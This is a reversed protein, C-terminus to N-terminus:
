NGMQLLGGMTHLIHRKLFPKDQVMNIRYINFKNLIVHHVRM